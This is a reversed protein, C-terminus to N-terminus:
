KGISQVTDFGKNYGFARYLFRHVKGSGRQASDPNPNQIFVARGNVAVIGAVVKAVTQVTGCLAAHGVNCLGAAGDAAVQDDLSGVFVAHGHAVGAQTQEVVLEYKSPVGRPTGGVANNWVKRFPMQGIFISTIPPPPRSCAMM